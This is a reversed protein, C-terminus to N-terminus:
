PNPPAATLADPIGGALFQVLANEVAINNFVEFHNVSSFFAGAECIGTGATFQRAYVGPIDGSDDAGAEDEIWQSTLFNGGPAFFLHCAGPNYVFDHRNGITLVSTGNTAAFEALEQNTLAKGILLNLDSAHAGQNDNPKGDDPPPFTPKSTTDFLKALDFVSVMQDFKTLGRCGGVVNGKKNKVEKYVHDFIVHEFNHNSSVGGVPSDLTVVGKLHANSSLAPVVTPAKLLATLYAYIVAGGMSHGILYVDTPQGKLVPNNTLAANIQQGLLNADKSIHQTFTLLCSYASPNGNSASGKYSYSLFQANAYGNSKLFPIIGPIIISGNRGARVTKYFDPIQTQGADLDTNIGQLLVFLTQHQAIPTTSPLNDPDYQQNLENLFLDTLSKTPGDTFWHDAGDYIILGTNRAYALFYGNNGLVNTTKAAAFWHPDSTTATNADGLEDSNFPDSSLGQTLSSNEVVTLTGSAGQPGPNSTAFPFTFWSYDANGAGGFGPACRDGDYLLIKNGAALYANIAAHQSATLSTAIDCVEFLILTDYAALTTSSLAAKALPTFTMGNYTVSATPSNTPSPGGVIADTFINASPISSGTFGSDDYTVYAINHSSRSAAFSHTIPGSLPIGVAAAILIFAALSLVLKSRLFRKM